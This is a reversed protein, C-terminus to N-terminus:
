GTKGQARARLTRESLVSEQVSYGFGPLDLLPPGLPRVGVDGDCGFSKQDDVDVRGIVSPQGIFGVLLDFESRSRERKGRATTPMVDEALWLTAMPVVRRASEGLPDIRPGVASIDDNGRGGEFAAFGVAPRGVQFEIDRRCM